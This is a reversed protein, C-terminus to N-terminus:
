DSKEKKPSCISTTSQRCAIARHWDMRDRLEVVPMNTVNLFVILNIFLKFKSSVVNSRNPLNLNKM